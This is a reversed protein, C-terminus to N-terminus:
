ATVLLRLRGFAEVSYRRRHREFVLDDRPHIVHAVFSSLRRHEVGDSLRGAQVRNLRTWAPDLGSPM